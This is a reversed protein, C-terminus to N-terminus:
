RILTVRAAASRRRLSARPVYRQGRQAGVPRHRGVRRSQTRRSVVAEVLGARAGREGFLDSIATLNAGTWKGVATAQGKRNLAPNGWIIYDLIDTSTGFSGSDYLMMEGSADTASTCNLPSIVTAFGGAPVTGAMQAYTFSSCLFYINPLVIDSGTTNFLEVYEDPNAESIVLAPLGIAGFAGSGDDLPELDPCQALTRLPSSLLLVALTLGSRPM